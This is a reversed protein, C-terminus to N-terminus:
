IAPIWEGDFDKQWAQKAGATYAWSGPTIEDPLIDLTNENKVLITYTTIEIKEDDSIYYSTKNSPDILYEIEAM